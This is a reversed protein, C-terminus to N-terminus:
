INKKTRGTNNSVNEKPSISKSKVFSAKDKRRKSLTDKPPKM